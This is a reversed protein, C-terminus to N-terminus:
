SAAPPRSVAGVRNVIDRLDFPKPIVELGEWREHGGHCCTGLVLVHCRPAIARLDALLQSCDRQHLDLLLVDPPPWSRAAARAEAANAAAVAEFGAASLGVSLAWRILPEDDVVLVRRRVGEPPIPNKVPAAVAIM